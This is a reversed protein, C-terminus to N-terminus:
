LEITVTYGLGELHEKALEHIAANDQMQTESCTVFFSNALDTQILKNKLYEAKNVFIALNVNSTTGNALATFSLRAYVNNIEIDTNKIKVTNIILAM